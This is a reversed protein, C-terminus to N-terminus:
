VSKALAPFVVTKWYEVLIPIFQSIFNENYSVGLIEINHSKEFDTNAVCYYCLKQGSLFMQVQMQAYYRYTPFGDKIYHEYTKESTPCKIEMIADTSTGDPSGALMPHEKSLILGSRRFRLGLKREVEKKVKEELLRGRQMASTDPIKGGMIRGMLAGDVTKCRSVEYATSATIRAYRLEYWLNCKYQDRTQVEIARIVDETIRIDELFQDCSKGKHALALHHMAACEINSPVHSPQYRLLECNRTGRKKSEELFEKLVSSSTPVQPTKIPNVAVDKAKIFKVGGGVTSLTSKRWYCEVSTCSPEESRRHVWMLFAVAHKCGGLSAVCDHCELSKVVREEEDVSLTVNYLKGRVKHEPCIKGKM